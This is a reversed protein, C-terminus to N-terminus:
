ILWSLYIKFLVTINPVKGGSDSIDTNSTQCLCQLQLFINFYYLKFSVPVIYLGFITWMTLGPYINQFFFFFELFIPGCGSVKNCKLIRFRKIRHSLKEPFKRSSKSGDSGCFEQKWSYFGILYCSLVRKLKENVNQALNCFLDFIKTGRMLNKM